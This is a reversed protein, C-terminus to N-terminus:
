KVAAMWREKDGGKILHALDESDCIYAAAEGIGQVLFYGVCMYKNVRKNTKNTDNMCIMTLM